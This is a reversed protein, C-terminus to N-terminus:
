VACLQQLQHIEQIVIKRGDYSIIKNKEFDALTRIVTETSTSAAKAIIKRTILSTKLLHKKQVLFHAVRSAVSMDQISRCSQLYDMRNRFQGIFYENIKPESKLLESAESRPIELLECGGMALASLPYTQHLKDSSLFAAGMSQGPELIDLITDNKILQLYGSIVIYISTMNEGYKFLFEMANINIKKGSKSLKKWIQLSMESPPNQPPHNGCSLEVLPISTKTNM